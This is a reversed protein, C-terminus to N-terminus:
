QKKRLITETRAEERGDVLIRDDGVFFTLSRGSVHQRDDVLEVKDGTVAITKDGPTYVAKQGTAVRTAQRLEVGDTAVLRELSGGDQGLVLLAQRSKTRVDAQTLQVDGKYTAERKAEEYEMEKARVELPSQEAKGADPKPVILTFVGGGATLVREGTEREVRRIRDARLESRGSRLLAADSYVATKAKAEYEFFRASAVTTDAESGPFGTSRGARRELVHRVGYRARADGSGTMLEITEAELRSGQETDTLSPGENLVLRSDKGHFYGRDATAKQSGREFEVDKNFEISEAAGTEKEFIAQFNRSKIRRPPSKDPPLPEGLFETDKQGQIESLQGEEDWRFTLVSGKLTRRERAEGAAPLVVLMADEKAVAEQLSRDPRLSAEFHQCTLERPGSKRRGKAKGPLSDSTSRVVVNGSARLRDLEEATGWLTLQQSTLKDGGRLLEVEGEFQAEGSARLLTARQSEIQIPPQEDDDVKIAVDGALSLRGAEAEYDMGKARGSLRKRRFEVPRESNAKGEQGKYALQETRLEVDDETVLRVHGQFFAEQRQPFYVCQDSSITAKAPQGESVYSFVMEVIELTVQEQERGAMRKARLRFTERGEKRHTYVLNDMQTAPASASGPPEPSRQPELPAPARTRLTWAVTGVVGLALAVVSGRLLAPRNM